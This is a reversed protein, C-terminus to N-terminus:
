IAKAGFDNSIERGRLNRGHRELCEDVCFAVGDREGPVDSSGM